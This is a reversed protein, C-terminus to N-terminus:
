TPEIGSLQDLMTGRVRHLVVHHMASGPGM